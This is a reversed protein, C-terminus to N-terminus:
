SVSNSEKYLPAFYLLIMGPISALFSILFFVEYGTENTIIGGAIGVIIGSVSMLGTGLAFHSTKYGKMCLRLLYTTLVATGLGASFQEFGNVFAVFFVNLKGISVPNLNGTNIALFDKFRWALWMYGLNTINQILLLWFSSKKFGYRSIIWGGLLAGFISAPLGIASTIWGIHKKIGLDVFFTGTMAHLMFEGTRVFIIFAIALGIKERDIFKFFSEAYFGEKSDTIKQKLKNKFFLLLVLFLLIFLGIWRAYSLKKFIFYSKSLNIYYKSKLFYKFWIIFGILAYIFGILKLEDTKKNRYAKILAPIILFNKLFPLLERFKNKAKEKKPLVKFHFVFLLAFVWFSLFFAYFWNYFTGVTVIVGQGFMMSIRYALIRYGIFKEQEKNDLAEMYFGDIAIDHTASVFAGVFFLMGILFLANDLPSLLSTVLLIFAFIVESSLLWNRKTSYEDIYPGWLFKLTWPLGYLSTLGINELSVGRDRFFISSVIRIITYPFGEAFYISGVWAFPSKIYEKIKM